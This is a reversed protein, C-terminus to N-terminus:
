HALPLTNADHNDGDLAPPHQPRPRQTKEGQSTFKLTLSGFIRCTAHTGSMEEIFCRRLFTPVAM